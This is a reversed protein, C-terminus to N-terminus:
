EKQYHYADCPLQAVEQNPVFFMQNFVTNGIGPILWNYRILQYNKNPQMPHQDKATQPIVLSTVINESFWLKLDYTVYFKAWFNSTTAYPLLRHSFMGNLDLDMDLYQAYNKGAGPGIKIKTKQLYNILEQPKVDKDVTFESCVVCLKQSFYIKLLTNQAIKNNRGLTKHWCWRLHEAIEHLNKEQDENQIKESSGPVCIPCDIKPIIPTIAKKTLPAQTYTNLLSMSTRCLEVKQTCTQREGYNYVFVTLFGMTIISIILLALTAETIAKRNM